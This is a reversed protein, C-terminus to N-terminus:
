SLSSLGVRTKLRQPVSVVGRHGTKCAKLTNSILLCVYRLNFGRFVAVTSQGFNLDDQRPQKQSQLVNIGSGHAGVLVALHKNEIVTALHAINAPGRTTQRAVARSSNRTGAFDKVRHRPGM